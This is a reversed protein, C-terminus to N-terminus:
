AVESEKENNYYKSAVRLAEDYIGMEKTASILVRLGNSLKEVDRKLAEIENRKRQEFVRNTDKDDYAKDLQKSAFEYKAEFLACRQELEKRTLNKYRSNSKNFM